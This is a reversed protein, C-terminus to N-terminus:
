KYKERGGFSPYKERQSLSFIEKSIDAISKMANLKNQHMKAIINM